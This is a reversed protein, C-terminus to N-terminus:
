WYTFRSFGRISSKSSGRKQAPVGPQLGAPVGRLASSARGPSGELPGKWRRSRKQRQFGKYCTEPGGRASAELARVRELLGELSRGAGGGGLGTKGLAKAEGCQLSMGKPLPVM